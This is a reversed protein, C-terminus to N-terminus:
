GAQFNVCLNMTKQIRDNFTISVQGEHLQAPTNAALQQYVYSQIQSNPAKRQQSMMQGAGAMQQMNAAM